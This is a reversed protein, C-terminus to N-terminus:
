SDENQWAIILSFSSRSVNSKQDYKKSYYNFNNPFPHSVISLSEKTLHNEIKAHFIEDIGEKEVIYLRVIIQSSYDRQLEFAFLIRRKEREKM